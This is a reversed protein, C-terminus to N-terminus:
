WWSARGIASPLPDQLPRKLQERTILEQGALVGSMLMDGTLPRNPHLLHACFGDFSGKSRRELLIPPLRAAFADRAVARNRGGKCGLWTPISLCCEVM